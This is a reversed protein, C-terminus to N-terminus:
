HHTDGTIDEGFGWDPGDSLDLLVDDLSTLPIGDGSTVVCLIIFLHVM